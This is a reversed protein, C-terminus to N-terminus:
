RPIKQYIWDGKSYLLTWNCKLKAQSLIYSSSTRDLIEQAINCNSAGFFRDNETRNGYFWITAVPEKGTIPYIAGSVMANAMVKGDPFTKLFLLAQYDKEEITHYVNIQKPINFYSSFVFYLVILLLVFFGINKLISKLKENRLFNLIKGLVRALSLFGIASLLPMAMAFYYLNRQFPSFYSFKFLKFMFISALVLVPWLLYILYNKREQRFLTVLFGIGALIYGILSYV